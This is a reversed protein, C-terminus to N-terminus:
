PRAEAIGACVDIPPESDPYGALRMENPTMAGIGRLRHQCAEKLLDRAPMTAFHIDWVRATGDDSASVVHSGDPSFAASFVEAEHGRLVTIVKTTTADWIRVTKDDSATVARKGDSSFVASNVPGEHGRLIAVEKASAADWIRATNDDSASLVRTGDPNFTASNVLAEHGRLVAIAKGSVADWVRTTKDASATVIRSGDPSFKARLVADDHGILVLSKNGTPVDWVSASGGTVTVVRTGDLALAGTSGGVSVIENGAADWVHTRGDEGTVILSGDRSFGASWVTSRHKRLVGLEKTTDANWIRATKDGGGTIIRSGDPSWEASYVGGGFKPDFQHGRFIRVDSGRWTNWVLASTGAAIVVRSGDPSFAAAASSASIGNGRLVSIEKSTVVDWVRATNDESATVIRSGDPSFMVSTVFSEHGRLVAIEKATKVDWLHVGHYDGAVIRSGDPSFAASNVEESHRLTLIEKATAAEWVHAAYDRSATVIRSGDLSYLASSLDGQHRLVAIEKGSAADWIRATRDWAATVIRSGDPSFVASAVNVDHGRLTAIEKGTSADWVRATRDWSATVIRSGDPSFAASNVERDHGHLVAILKTTATDWIKATGDSCATVIRSGDPSFAAALVPVGANIARDWPMEDVVKGLVTAANSASVSNAPLALDDATGKAALRLASNFNGRVLEADAREGLLNAHEHTLRIDKALLSSAEEKLESQLNRNRGYQWLVFGASLITVLAAVILARRVRRQAWARREQALNIADLREQERKLDEEARKRDADKQVVGATVYSKEDESLENERRAIWDEAVALPGGRLLTGEDTPSKRWDDLRQKLQNRWSIFARDRNVWDVLAPWNRILAEHAVEVTEQGPTTAGTVVLRNDEGALKQALAWEQQSLDERAVIRRTDESGEGLTVLRTFLHRFLAVTSADTENKTEDEFIAQARKAL